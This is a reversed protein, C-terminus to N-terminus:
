TFLDRGPVGIDANANMFAVPQGFSRRDDRQVIGDIM